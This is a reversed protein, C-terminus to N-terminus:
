VEARCAMEQFAGWCYKTPIMINCGGNTDMCIFRTNEHTVEISSDGHPTKLKLKVTGEDPQLCLSLWEESSVMVDAAFMKFIIVITTPHDYKLTFKFGNPIGDSESYTHSASVSCFEDM